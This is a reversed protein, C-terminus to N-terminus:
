AELLAKCVAAVVNRVLGGRTWIGGSRWQCGRGLNLALGTCILLIGLLLRFGRM